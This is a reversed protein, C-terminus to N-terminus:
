YLVLIISVNLELNVTFYIIKFLHSLYMTREIKKIVSSITNFLGM